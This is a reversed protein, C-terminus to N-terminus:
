VCTKTLQLHLPFQFSVTALPADVRVDPEPVVGATRVRGESGIGNPVWVFSVGLSCSCALVDINM